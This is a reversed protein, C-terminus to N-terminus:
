KKNIKKNTKEALDKWLDADNVDSNSPKEKKPQDGKKGKSDRKEKAKLQAKVKAAIDSFSENNEQALIIVSHDSTSKFELQESTDAFFSSTKSEAPENFSLIIVLAVFPLVFLDPFKVM